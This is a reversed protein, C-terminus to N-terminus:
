FEVSTSNNLTNCSLFHCRWANLSSVDHDDRLRRRWILLNDYIKSIVSRVSPPESRFIKGNRADWLRWLITQLIFPWLKMNLHVPVTANWADVDSLQAVSVLNLKRWVGDSTHCGFFCMNDTRLLKRAANVSKVTWFM